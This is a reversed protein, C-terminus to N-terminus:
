GQPSGDEELLLAAEVLAASGQGFIFTRRWTGSLPTWPGAGFAFPVLDTIGPSAANRVYWGGLVPDVMGIGDGGSGDWNGAVPVWSGVGFAFPAVDPVGASNVNRLYWTASTPDVVGVTDTGNGDWDGVVPKWGLGGYAFTVLGPGDANNTNRLYWTGTGPDFVGVTDIGDGDWDGAVPIWGPLGFAFPTFDPAGASNSNRLYWTGTFPDFVGVTDVRDGNWDGTVAMWGPAGFAFPTLVAGGSRGRYRLYWTGTAPDFAGVTGPVVTGSPTGAPPLTGVTQYGFADSLIRIDTTSPLSREGMQQVATMLDGPHALPSLHGGGDGAFRATFGNNGTFLLGGGPLPTLRDALLPFFEGFGLVHGIEHTVATLLDPGDPGDQFSFPDTASPSFESSEQPTPDVFWTSSGRGALAANSTITVTGDTPRGGSRSSYAASALGLQGPGLDVGSSPGGLFTIPLDFDIVLRDEWNRIAQDVVVREAPTYPDTASGRNAWIIAPATRDELPELCPHAPRARSSPRLHAVLHTLWNTM